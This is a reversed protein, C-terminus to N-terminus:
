ALTSISPNKGCYLSEYDSPTTHSKVPFTKKREVVKVNLIVEWFVLSSVYQIEIKPYSSLINSATCNLQDCDTNLINSIDASIEDINRTNTLTSM